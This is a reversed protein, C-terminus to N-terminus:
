APLPTPSAETEDSDQAAKRAEERIRAAEVPDMCMTTRSEYTCAQSTRKLRAGAARRGELAAAAENKIEGSDELDAAPTPTGTRFAGSVPRTPVGQAPTVALAAAAVSKIHAGADRRARGSAAVQAQLHEM